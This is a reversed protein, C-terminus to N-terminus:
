RRAERSRDVGGGAIGWLLCAEIFVVAFITLAAATPSPALALAALFLGFMVLGKPHIRM